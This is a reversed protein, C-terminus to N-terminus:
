KEKRVILDAVSKGFPRESMYNTLAYRVGRKMPKGRHLGSTDAIILCGKTGTLDCIQLDLSRAIKRVQEESYRQLPEEDNLIEASLRKLRGLHSGKVYQFCGNKDDVDSLYLIFKLQRRNVTDRHWGGGSGINKENFTMKAAMITEYKRAASIYKKFITRLENTGFLNEFEDEINEIGFIRIDSDFEDRWCFEEHVNKEILGKFMECNEPKIFDNVVFFGNTRVASELEKDCKLNRTLTDNIRYISNIVFNRLKKIKV